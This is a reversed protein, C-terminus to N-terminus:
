PRFAADCEPHAADPVTITFCVEWMCSTDNTGDSSNAVSGGPCRIPAAPAPAEGGGQSPTTSRQQTQQAARAAEEAAAADAAAQAAAQAAAAQEAAVRAAEAEAAVRAREAEAELQDGDVAPVTAPIWERVSTPTPAPEAAPATAGFAYVGAIVAAVAGISISTATIRKTRTNM